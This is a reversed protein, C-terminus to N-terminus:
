RGVESPKVGVEVAAVREPLDGISISARAGGAFRSRLSAVLAASSTPSGAGGEGGPGEGGAVGASGGAGDLGATADGLGATAEEMIVLDTAAEQLLAQEAELDTIRTRLKQAAPSAAESPGVAVLADLQKTLETRRASLDQLLSAATVCLTLLCVPNIRRAPTGPLWTQTSLCLQNSFASASRTAILQPIFSFAGM